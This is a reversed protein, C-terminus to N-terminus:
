LLLFYKQHKFQSKNHISGKETFQGPRKIIEQFLEGGQM